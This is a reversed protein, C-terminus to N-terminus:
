YRGGRGRGGGQGGRGRSWGRQGEPGGGQGGRGRGWGGQGGRGGQGRGRGEGPRAAQDRANWAPREPRFNELEAATVVGDGDADMQAFREDRGPFEDATVQGDDNTDFREMFGGAMRGRAREVLATRAEQRTVYGDSDADASKVKGVFERLEADSVKGDNDGDLVGFIGAGVAAGQRMRNRLGEGRGGMGPGNQGNTQGRLERRREHVMQRAAAHEVEDILGDGNTDMREFMEARGPFEDRSIVGDGDADPGGRGGGQQALAPAGVMLVAAVIALWMATKAM